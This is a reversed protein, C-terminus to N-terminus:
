VAAGGFGQAMPQWVKLRKRLFYLIFFYTAPIAIAFIVLFVSGPIAYHLWTVNFPKGPAKVLVRYDAKLFRCLRPIIWTLLGAAVYLTTDDIVKVDM